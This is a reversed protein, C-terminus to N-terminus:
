LVIMVSALLYLWSSYTNQVLSGIGCTNVKDYSMHEEGAPRSGLVQDLKESRGMERVRIVLAGPVVQCCAIAEGRLPLHPLNNHLRLGVSRQALM